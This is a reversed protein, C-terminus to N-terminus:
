PGEEGTATAIVLSECSGELRVGRHIIGNGGVCRCFRKHVIKAVGDGPEWQCGAGTIRLGRGGGVVRGEVFVQVMYLPSGRGGLSLQVACPRQEDEAGGTESQVDVGDLVAEEVAAVTGASEAVIAKSSALASALVCAFCNVSVKGSTM